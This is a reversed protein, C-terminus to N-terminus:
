RPLPPTSQPPRRHRTAQEHAFAYGLIKADDFARGMIELGVPLGDPTFGAPVSVAPFGLVPALSRNSGVRTDGAAAANTMLDAPVISPAHDATAYVLADLRREAMLSLVTRRLSEAAQLVRLFGAENTSRGITGMLGRARWPLMGGPALLLQRLSQVPATPHEALYADTAGETEFVDDDYAHGLRTAVDAITVDELEAGRARLDAHARDLVARIHRYDEAATNTGRDMPERIVGLRVGRLADPRLAAAFPGAIRGVAYATVPDKPDYGAIVDLMLAADKVTRAIPGVSDYIPRSPLAGHRSVLALTPRHGVLSGMAAPGRVSGGTDEALAVTAFGAALGAGTGSSSGGPHRRLDYPNRPSGSISGAYGSAFEGMTSKAIVVAGAARLKAVATADRSPVFAKFAASGYTTPMDATEFQDKVLVPVCHLPGVPGAARLAADLRDAEAHARANLNVIANLAPGRTDYADIRQLYHDVVARCTVRRARLAEQLADISIENLDVTSAGGQAAALPRRATAALGLLCCVLSVLVRQM